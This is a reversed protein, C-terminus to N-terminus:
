EASGDAGAAARARKEAKSVGGRTRKKGSSREAGGGGGSAHTSPTMVSAKNDARQPTPLRTIDSGRQHLAVGAEVLARAVDLRVADDADGNDDDDDVESPGVPLAAVAITRPYAALVAELAPAAPLAFQEPSDLAHFHRSNALSHHVVAVEGDITLRACGRCRLRLRSTLSVHRAEKKGQAEAEAWETAEAVRWAGVRGGPPPPPPLRDWVHRTALEDAAQDLLRLATKQWKHLLLACQAKFAARKRSLASSGRVGEEEGEEEADGGADEGDDEAAEEEDAHQLGQFKEWGRPLNTRWVEDSAAAENLAGALLGEAFDAWTEKRATSLTVHLSGQRGNAPARSVGGLAPANPLEGDAAQAYHIWGRPLYLLDGPLLTLELVKPPLGEAPLNGSSERPHVEAPAHVSWKKAGELQVVWVDVDDWHPAFGRTGNPTLYANAGSAGGFQEDLLHCAVWLSQGVRQPWSLRVSAGEAHAHWVDAAKAVPLEGTEEDAPPNHTTRGAEATYVALDLESTYHLANTRLAADIAPTSFLGEYYGRDARRVCLPRKGYVRKEFTALPVPALLWAAFAAPASAACAKAGGFLKEFREDPAGEDTEVVWPHGEPAFSAPLKM